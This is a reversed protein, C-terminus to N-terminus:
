SRLRTALAQLSRNLLLLLRTHSWAKGLTGSSGALTLDDVHGPLYADLM